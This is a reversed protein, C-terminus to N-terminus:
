AGKGPLPAAALTELALDPHIRVLELEGDPTCRLMSGCADWDGVVARELPSGHLAPRHTHGHIMLRAGHDALAAQVAGPNVDMIAEAKNQKSAESRRRLAQAEAQREALPRALFDARVQPQAVHARFRMHDLDDICLRDGHTLLTRVGCLDIATPDPLLSCGSREAFRRGALFDRNGCIFSTPTGAAVLERLGTLIPEHAPSDDDDGVWVEFLDGLIYLRAAAHAPGRLFALFLAVTAPRVAPDLHLDAIFLTADQM